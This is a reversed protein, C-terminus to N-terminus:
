YLADVEKCKCMIDLKNLCQICKNILMTLIFHIVHTSKEQRTVSTNEGNYM